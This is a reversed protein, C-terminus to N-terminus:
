LMKLLGLRIQLFIKILFSEVLPAELTFITIQNPNNATSKVM